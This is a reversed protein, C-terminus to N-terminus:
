IFKLHVDNYKLKQKSVDHEGGLSQNGDTMTVTCMHGKGRKGEGKEGEGRIVVLRIETDIHPNTTTKIKWVHAKEVRSIESLMINELYM